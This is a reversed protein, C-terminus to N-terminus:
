FGFIEREKSPLWHPSKAKKGEWTYLVEDFSRKERHMSDPYSEFFKCTGPEVGLEQIMQTALHESMNTVSTGENDYLEEFCIHTIGHIVEVYVKCKSECKWFGEFNHTFTKM